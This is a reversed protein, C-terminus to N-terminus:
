QPRSTLNRGSSTGPGRMTARDTVSSLAARLQSVQKSGLQELLDAEVRKAIELADAALACGKNTLRAYLIRRNGRKAERVLLEKRELSRIVEGISQPRVGTARALEASSAGGNTRLRILMQFQAVTLQLEGLSEELRNHVALETRSLLYITGAPSRFM